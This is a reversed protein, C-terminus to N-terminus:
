GGGAPRSVSSNKHLSFVIGFPVELNTAAELVGGALVEFVGAATCSDEIRVVEEALQFYLLYLSLGQNHLVWFPSVSAIIISLHGRDVFNLLQFILKM